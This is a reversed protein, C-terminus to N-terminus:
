KEIHYGIVKKAQTDYDCTLTVHKYVGFGNQLKAKHSINTLVGPSKM